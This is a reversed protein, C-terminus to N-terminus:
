VCVLSSTATVQRLSRDRLTYVSSLQGIEPVIPGQSWFRSTFYSYASPSQDGFCTEVNLGQRVIGKAHALVILLSFDRWRHVFCFLVTKNYKKLM